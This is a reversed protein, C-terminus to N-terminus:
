LDLLYLIDSDKNFDYKKYDEWNLMIDPYFIKARRDNAPLFFQFSNSISGKIQTLPLQFPTMEMYANPAQESPVGILTAGMKWLYFAYHFAASFTQQNTIVFVKEPSYVPKGDLYKIYDSAEGLANNILKSRREAIDINEDFDLLSLYDGIQYNSQNKDNFDELTTNLKKLYLDSVLRYLCVDMNKELYADGYLMYLTPYVIPTFGGGNSRLDIILYKANDTKMQELMQRFVDSLNPIAAIAEDINDPMEKKLDYTYFNQLINEMQGWGNDKMYTFPERAMVTSMKFYMVQKGEDLYDHFLFDDQIKAYKPIETMEVNACSDISIYMLEITETNGDLTELIISAKEQMDPLLSRMQRYNRLWISLWNYKGYINEMPRLKGVDKCLESLSVGNIGHFKSGIFKEKDKSIKSVILGDQIVMFEIPLRLNAVDTNSPISEISTHGDELNSIFSLVLSTFEDLTAGNRLQQEMDSAEKHFFVKGGFGTYPDPHTEELLKIFYKFDATLTDGSVRQGHVNNMFVALSLSLTLLALCTKGCAINLATIVNPIHRKITM